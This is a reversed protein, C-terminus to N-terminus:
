KKDEIEKVMKVIFEINDHFRNDENIYLHLGLDQYSKVEEDCIPCKM